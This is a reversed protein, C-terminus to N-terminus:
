VDSGLGPLLRAPQAKRRGGPHKGNTYYEGYDYYRFNSRSYASSIPVDTLVLGILNGKMRRIKTTAEVVAKQDTQNARIAFLVGDAESCILISEAVALVPATDIIILDYRSRLHELLKAHRGRNLVAVPDAVESGSTLVDLNNSVAPSRIAATLNVGGTLVDTLGPSRDVKFAEHVVSKRFDADVLLVRRGTSASSLALNIAVTSKGEGPAASAVAIVLPRSPDVFGINTALWRFAEEGAAQISRKKGGNLHPVMGLIDLDAAQEAEDARSIRTDLHHRVGVVGIGLLLGLFGAIGLNLQFPVPDPRLPVTAPDVIRVDGNEVAEAIQAEYYGGLLRDFINQVADVQQGLRAFEASREPMEGVSSRLEAVQVEADELQNRRLVLAEGAVSRVDRWTAARLSDIVEVEPGLDTQGFRSSTLSSRQATLQQLRQYLEAGGPLIGSGLAVLRYLGTDSTPDSSLTAVLSELLGVQYRLTRANSEANMLATVLTNGEIRPDLSGESRQYDLLQQQVRGLSDTIEVMRNAIFEKRIGAAERAWRARFSEYARAAVNAVAAAHTPDADSYRIRILAPGLGPEVVLQRQLRSVASEFDVVSILLPEEGIDNGQLRVRFGPGRLWDSAGSRHLESGTEPDLLAAGTETSVIEYTGRQPSRDVAAQAILWSREAQRNGLDLQLGLSDVPEALVTRSRIIELQSAFDLQEGRFVTNAVDGLAPSETHQLLVAATYVPEDQSMAYWAMGISLLCSPVIIWWGRRVAVLFDLLERERNEGHVMGADGNNSRNNSNM